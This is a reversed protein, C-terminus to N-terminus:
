GGVSTPPILVWADQQAVPLAETGPPDGVHLLIYTPEEHRNTVQSVEYSVRTEGVRRVRDGKKFKPAVVEAM